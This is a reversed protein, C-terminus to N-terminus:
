PRVERAVPVAEPAPDGRGLGLLSAAPLRDPATSHREPSRPPGGSYGIRRLDPLGLAVLGVAVLGAGAVSFAVGVGRAQILFGALLIGLPTMALGATEDITLYRGILGSPVIQQVLSFFATIIWGFLIGIAALAALGVAFIPVAVSLEFLLGGVILVGILTRGYRRVVGLRGISISGAFFGGTFSALLYGFDNASHRLVDVTYVILFPTWMSLFFGAAVSVLTLEVLARSSRLYQLGIRVEEVWTSGSPRAAGEAAPVYRGRVQVMLIGSGLFIAVALGLAPYLGWAILLFAGVGAGATSAVATSAQLAGNAEDLCESPVLNPLIANASPRFVATVAQLAVVLGLVVPLQFGLTALSALVLALSIGQIWATLILLTRRDYRDTVVGAPLGIALLPLTEALGVYAVALASGTRSFVLYLLLVDAIALGTWSAVNAAWYYRYNRNAFLRALASPSRASPTSGTAGDM